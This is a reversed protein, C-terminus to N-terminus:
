RQGETTKGNLSARDSHGVLVIAGAHMYLNIWAVSDQGTQIGWKGRMPKWDTKCSVSTPLAMLFLEKPAKTFYCIPMELFSWSYFPNHM